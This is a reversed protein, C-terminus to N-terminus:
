GGSSGNISVRRRGFMRADVSYAGPGLFVLSGAIVLFEVEALPSGLGIASAGARHTVVLAGMSLFSVASAIPTLFGAVLLLGSAMMLVCMLAAGLPAHSLAAGFHVTTLAGLTARQALLAVGPLRSPFSSFTRQLSIGETFRSPLAILPRRGGAM